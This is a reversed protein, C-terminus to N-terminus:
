NWWFSVSFSPTLSRVYHWWGVPVYLCDGPGLVGEVYRATRFGPYRHRTGADDVAEAEGNGHEGPRGRGKPEEWCSIEDWVSMAVDLDVCSTNSMDVGDDQTGRPHMKSTECPAYLRVYKHGVVQALINHYPDTHLPSITDAPGFWANLLPEDLEDVAKVNSLNSPPAAPSTYCYDPIAIDARLSPIQAFLDHQALYGKNDHKAGPLPSETSAKDSTPNGNTRPESAAAAPTPTDLELMYERMFEQFTLIKQGWGADTYSRGIEVPVLRRGDLTKRMLYGPKKWARDEEFAPWHQIAGEIILPIQTEPDTVKAEFASLSLRQFRPIPHKINPTVAINDPFTHLLEDDGEVKRRKRPRGRGEACGGVVEELVEFWAGVVEERGVAGTLILAMDLTEVVQSVWGDGSKEDGIAGEIIGVIVWLAADVYLRRWCTKVERYPVAHLQQYALRLCTQPDGPLLSLPARGASLLTSDQLPPISALLARTSTCIEQLSSHM